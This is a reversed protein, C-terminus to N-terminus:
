LSPVSPPSCCGGPACSMGGRGEYWQAPQLGSGGPPGPAAPHVGQRGPQGGQCRPEQGPAGREPRDAGAGALPGPDQLVRLLPHHGRLGLHEGDVFNQNETGGGHSGRARHRPACGPAALPPGAALPAPFPAPPLPAFPFRASIVPVSGPSRLYRSRLYRSRLPSLPFQASLFPAFPASSDKLVVAGSGAGHGSDGRPARVVAPLAAHLPASRQRAEEEEEEGGGARGGGAGAAGARGGDSAARRGSRLAGTRLSTSRPIEDVHVCRARGAEGLGARGRVALRPGTCPRQGGPSPEDQGVCPTDKAATCLQLPPSAGGTEGTPLLHLLNLSLQSRARSRSSGWCQSPISCPFSMTPVVDVPFLLVQWADM